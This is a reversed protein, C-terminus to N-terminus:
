RAVEGAPRERLALLAEVAADAAVDIPIRGREASVPWLLADRPGSLTLGADEFAVLAARGATRLARALDDPVDPDADLSRSLCATAEAAAEAATAWGSAAPVEVQPLLATVFASVAQQGGPISPVPVPEGARHWAAEDADYAPWRRGQALAVAEDLSRVTSPSVALHVPGPQAAALACVDAAWSEVAAVTPEPLFETVLGAVLLTREGEWAAAPLEVVRADPTREAAPIAEWWADTAFSNLGVRPDPIRLTTM